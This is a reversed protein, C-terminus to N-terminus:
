RSGPGSLQRTLLDIFNSPINGEPATAKGQKPSESTVTSSLISPSNRSDISQGSTPQVPPPPAPSGAPALNSTASPTSSPYQQPQTQMLTGIMSQLQGADRRHQEQEKEMAAKYDEINRTRRRIEEVAEQDRAELATLQSTTQQYRGDIKRFEAELTRRKAFLAANDQALREHAEKAAVLQKQIERISNFSQAEMPKDMKDEEHDPVRDVVEKRYPGSPNENAGEQAGNVVNADSTPELDGSNRSIMHRRQSQYKEWKKMEWELHAELRKIYEESGAIAGTYLVTSERLQEETRLMTGKLKVIDDQLSRYADELLKYQNKWAMDAPSQDTSADVMASPTLSVNMGNLQDTSPALESMSPLLGQLHAQQVHLSLAKVSLCVQRCNEWGCQIESVSTPEKPKDEPNEASEMIVDGNGNVAPTTPTTERKDAISKQKLGDQQALPQGPSKSTNLPETATVTALLSSNAESESNFPVPQTASPPYLGSGHLDGAMIASVIVRDVVVIGQEPHDRRRYELMWEPIFLAKVIGNPIDLALFFSGPTGQQKKVEILWTESELLSAGPALEPNQPNKLFRIMDERIAADRVLTSKAILSIFFAKEHDFDLKLLRITAPAGRNISLTQRREMYDSARNHSRVSHGDQRPRKTGAISNSEQGVASVDGKFDDQPSPLQTAAGSTAPGSMEVDKSEDAATSTTARKLLKSHSSPQRTRMSSTGSEPRHQIPHMAYHAPIPYPHPLHNYVPPYPHPYGQTYGVFPRSFTGPVAQHMDPHGMIPQQPPIFTSPPRASAESPTLSYVHRPNMQLPLPAGTQQQHRPGHSANTGHLSGYSGNNSPSRRHQQARKTRHMRDYEEILEDGIINCEPEWSDEYENGQADTGQWRILYEVAGTDANIRKELIRDVLCIDQTINEPM